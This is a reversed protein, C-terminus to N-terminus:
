VRSLKKSEPLRAGKVVLWALFVTEGCTMIELVSLVLKSDPSLLQVFSALTFGAGGIFLCVGLVKPFYGSKYVLYGLPFLWLGWFIKAILLANQNVGLLLMVQGPNNAAASASLSALSGALAVPVGVLALVLMLMAATKGTKEFVRYLLLAAFVFVVQTLWSGAIGSRFLSERSLINRATAAADGHVVLVSPVYDLSFLGLVIWLPYLLRLISVARCQTLEMKNGM